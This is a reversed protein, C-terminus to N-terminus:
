KLLRALDLVGSFWNRHTSCCLQLWKFYQNSHVTVLAANWNRKKKKKKTEIMAWSCAIYGNFNQSRLETTEAIVVAFCQAHVPKITHLCWGKNKFEQVDRFNLSVRWGGYLHNGLQYLQLLRWAVFHSLCGEWQFWSSFCIKKWQCFEAVVPPLAPHM